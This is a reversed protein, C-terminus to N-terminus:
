FQVEIELGTKLRLFNDSYLKSFLDIAKQGTCHTPAIKCVGLKQLKSAIDKIENETKSELHFGGMVCYIKDNFHKKIAETMQIVGPHACGLIIVLGKSIKLILAQEVLQSQKYTTKFPESTFIGKDIESFDENEILKINCKVARERFDDSFGKLGYLLVNSNEKFLAELGGVHDWHDHSIVVKKILSLDINMMQVNHLFTEPSDATDFLIDDNILVSFGWCEKFKKDFTYNDALIRIKM